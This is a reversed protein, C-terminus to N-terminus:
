RVEFISNLEGFLEFQHVDDDKDIDIGFYNEYAIKLGEEDLMKDTIEPNVKKEEEYM